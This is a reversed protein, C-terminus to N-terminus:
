QDAKGSKTGAAHGIAEHSDAVWSAHTARLDHPTVDPLARLLQAVFAPM